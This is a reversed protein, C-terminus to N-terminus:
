SPHHDDINRVVYRLAPVRPLEDEGGIGLALDIEVQQLLMGLQVPKGQHAITEHRIVNVQDNDRSFGIGQRKGKLVSV